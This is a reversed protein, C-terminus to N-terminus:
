RGMEPRKFLVDGVKLKTDDSLWRVKGFYYDGESYFEVKRTNQANVWTGVLKEPSQSFFLTSACCLLGAFILKRIMQIRVMNKM